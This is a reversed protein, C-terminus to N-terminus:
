IFLQRICVYVYMVFIYMSYIFICVNMIMYVYVDYMYICVYMRVYM